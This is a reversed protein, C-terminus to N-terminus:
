IGKIEWLYQSNGGWLALGGTQITRIEGGAGGGVGAAPHHDDAAAHPRPPLLPPARLAATPPRHVPRPSTKAFTYFLM